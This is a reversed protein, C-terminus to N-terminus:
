PTACGPTAPVGDGSFCTQLGLGYDSQDVDGDRDVDAPLVGEADPQLMCGPPLNFADYPITPGTACSEFLDLDDDDVDGDGDLDAPALPVLAIDLVEASSTTVSVAHSQGAHNPASFQLTYDGPPPFAHYRGFPGGSRNIEGNLFTVEAYTVNAQIPRGTPASVVRGSVPIPRQAAHLISPFVLDAEAQGAAYAPQFETGAEYLFAHTGHTNTHLHIDGGTCCSSAAAYGPMLAALAAAESMWFSTFPHILCGSGYRVERAFSHFDLVKAFHRDEAFAIMTQTEAESAAAPGRYTESNVSTSGGCSADWAFPYNRNLDVGVGQAFVRRNKRWWNDVDFVYVYGDPNWVPAIWLECGNVIGTIDADSGYLTTFREIAELGIMPTTIERAHHTSVLLMAPEDEDVAVNDSIRVAFLHRGEATPPANYRATLDVVQCIAPFAAAAANMEAIIQALTQYGAPVAEANGQAEAQIDKFPQGHALIEPPLGRRELAAREQPSVILEFSDATVTPELVDFGEALLERSLQAADPAAVRVRALTEGALIRASSLGIVLVLVMRALTRSM